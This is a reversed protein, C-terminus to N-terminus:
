LKPLSFRLHLNALWDPSGDGNADANAQPLGNVFIGGFTTDPFPGPLNGRPGAHWHSPLKSRLDVGAFFRTPDVLLGSVTVPGAAGIVSAAQDLGALFADLDAAANYTTQCTYTYPPGPSYTCAQRALKLFDNSQDDTEARLSAVGARADAIASLLSARAATLQAPDTLTGLAPYSALFADGSPPPSGPQVASQLAALDIGLDYARQLQVLGLGAEAVARLFIADTQDFEVVVNRVTFRHQFSPSVSGLASAVGQLATGLRGLLFAQLDRSGPCGPPLTKLRCGSGTCDVFRITDLHARDLASGGLGYADLLNGLTALTGASASSSSPDALVALLAAAGFFNAQDKQAQTATPDTATASAAARYANAAAILDATSLTTIGSQLKVDGAVLSEGVTVSPPQPVTPADGTTSSGGCASITGALVLLALGRPARCNM